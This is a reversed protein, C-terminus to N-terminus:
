VITLFKLRWNSSTDQLWVYTGTYTFDTSTFGGMVMLAKRILRM